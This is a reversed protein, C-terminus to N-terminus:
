IADDNSDEGESERRKVKARAKDFLDDLRTEKDKEASLASELRDEAKASRDEVREEAGTWRKTDVKPRGTEDLEAPASARLVTETLVDVALKSSCCPCTIEIQKKQM